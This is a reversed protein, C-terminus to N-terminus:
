VGWVGWAQRWLFPITCWGVRTGRRLASPWLWRLARPPSGGSSKSTSVSRSNKRAPKGTAGKPVADLFVLTEPLWKPALGHMTGHARLEKLDLSTPLKPVVAAGM